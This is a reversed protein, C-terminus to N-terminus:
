GNIKENAHRELGEVADASVALYSLERTQEWSPSLYATLTVVVLFVKTPSYLRDKGTWMSEVKALAEANVRWCNKLCGLIIQAASQALQAMKMSRIFQSLNDKTIYLSMFRSRIYRADRIAGHPSDFHRFAEEIVAPVENKPQQIDSDIGTELWFSARDAMSFVDSDNALSQTDSTSLSRLESIIAERYIDRAWDFIYDIILLLCLAGEKSVIRGDWLDVIRKRRNAM